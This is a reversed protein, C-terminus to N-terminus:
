VDGCEFNRFVDKKPIAAFYKAPIKSTADKCDEKFMKKM